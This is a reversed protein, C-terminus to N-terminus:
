LYLKTFYIPPPQHLTYFEIMPNSAHFAVLPCNAQVRSENFNMLEKSMFYGVGVDDYGWCM